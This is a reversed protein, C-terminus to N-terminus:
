SFLWMVCLFVLRSTWFLAPFLYRAEPEWSQWISIGNLFVSDFRTSPTEVAKYLISVNIHHAVWLQSNMPSFDHLKRYCMDKYDVFFPKIKEGKKIRDIRANLKSIFIFASIFTWKNINLHSFNAIFYVGNILTM